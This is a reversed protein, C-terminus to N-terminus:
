KSVVLLSSNIQNNVWNIHKKSKKHRNLNDKITICGCECTIKINYEKRYEKWYEKNDNFWKKIEEKHDERYEKKTRGEIKINLTGIERIIEGEKKCLEEKSNCPYLSHLEIYWDDWDNNITQYILRNQHNKSKVKHTGWRKALPQITSGVYILTDDTKCRITYIKGQQYDPM